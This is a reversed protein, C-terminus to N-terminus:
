ACSHDAMTAESYKTQMSYIVTILARVQFVDQQTTCPQLEGLMCFVRFLHHLCEDPLIHPERNLYLRKCVLWCVEDISAEYERLLNLSLADPLSSFVKFSFSSM